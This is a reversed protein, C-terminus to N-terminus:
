ADVDASPGNPASSGVVFGGPVPAMFLAPPDSTVAGQMGFSRDITGNASYRLGTLALGTASSGMCSVLLKGDALEHADGLTMYSSPGAPVDCSGIGALSEFAQVAGSQPNFRVFKETYRGANYDIRAALVDGNALIRLGMFFANLADAAPMTVHGGVGFSSDLSGNSLLRTVVLFTAGNPEYNGLLLVKGDPLSRADRLNGAQVEAGVQGTGGWSYDPTGDPMLRAVFTPLSPCIIACLYIRLLRGTALIKGDPQVMLSTISDVGVSSVRWSGNAGFATDLTGDPLLRAIAPGDGYYDNGDVNKGFLQGASGGVLIKGDALATIAHAESNGPDIAFRAVGGQGFFPDVAAAAIGAAFTVLSFAVLFFRSRLDQRLRKM